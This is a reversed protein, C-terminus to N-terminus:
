PTLRNLLPNEEFSYIIENEIDHREMNKILKNHTNVYIIMAFFKLILTIPIMNALILYDNLFLSLYYGYFLSFHMFYAIRKIGKIKKKYETFTNAKKFHKKYHLVLITNIYFSVM